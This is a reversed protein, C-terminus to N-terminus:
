SGVDLEWWAWAVGDTDGDSTGRGGGEACPATAATAAVTAFVAVYGTSECARMSTSSIEVYTGISRADFEWGAWVVGDIDVRTLSIAYGEDCDTEVVVTPTRWVGAVATAPVSTYAAGPAPVSTYAAGPM